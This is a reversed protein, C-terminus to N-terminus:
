INQDNDTTPADSQVTLQVTEDGAGNEEDQDKVVKELQDKDEEHDQDGGKACCDDKINKCCFACFEWTKFQEERNHNEHNTVVPFWNQLCDNCEDACKGKCCCLFLRQEKTKFAFYKKQLISNVCVFWMGILSLGYSMGVHWVGHAPIWGMWPNDKCPFEVGIWIVACAVTIGVGWKMHSTMKQYTSRSEPQVSCKKCLCCEDGPHSPMPLKPWGFPEIIDKMRKKGIGKVFLIWNALLSLLPIGIGIIFYLGDQDEECGVIDRFLLAWIVFGCITWLIGRIIPRVWDQRKQGGQSLLMKNFLERQQAYTADWVVVAIIWLEVYMSSNDMVMWQRTGYYHNLFSGTANVAICASVFRLIIFNHDWTFQWFAMGVIWFDTICSIWQHEMVRGECFGNIDDFHQYFYYPDNSFCWSKPVDATYWSSQSM